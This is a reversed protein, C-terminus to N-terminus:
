FWLFLEMKAIKGDLIVYREAPVIITTNEGTPDTGKNLATGDMWMLTNNPYRIEFYFEYGMIGLLYKIKDYDMGVFQMVKTKNLVNEEMALGLVRVNSENWREPLGPVRILTDSIMLVDNELINLNVQDASNRIAYNWAFIVIGVVFTFIIVSAAFDLSWVQAKM